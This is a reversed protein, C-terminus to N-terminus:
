YGGVAQAQPRRGRFCVTAWNSEVQSCEGWGRPRGTLAFTMYQPACRSYLSFHLSLVFTHTCLPTRCPCVYFISTCLMPQSWPFFVLTFYLISYIFGTLALIILLPHNLVLGWWFMKFCSCKLANESCYQWVKVKTYFALLSDAMVFATSVIHHLLWLNSLESCSVFSSRANDPVTVVFSLTPLSEGDRYCYHPCNM